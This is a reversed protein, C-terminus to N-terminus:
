RPPRGGASNDGASFFAAIDQALLRPEEQAAFHGGRPMVTWRRLNYLREVLERPPIGEAVHEHAFVAMATPVRVFDEPGIPGMRRDDYYYRM